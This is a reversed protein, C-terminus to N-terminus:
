SSSSTIELRPSARRSRHRVRFKDMEMDMGGETQQIPGDPHFVQQGLGLSIAHRRHGDGVVAGQEPDQIEVLFGLGRPDLGQQPALEVHRGAGALFLRAFPIVAVQHDQRLVQLAVVIEDPQDGMRVLFPEIVAGPHVLFQQGLQVPAEDGQGGAEVAHHRRFQEIVVGPGGLGVGPLVGLDKLVPEIQLDLGVVQRLLELDVLGQQFQTGAPTQGHHGGVIDMIQLGFVGPGVVDQQADLGALSHVGRAAHFELRVLEIELTARM